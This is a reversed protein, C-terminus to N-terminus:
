FTIADFSGPCSNMWPNLQELVSLLQGAATPIYIETRTPAYDHQTNESQIYNKGHMIAICNYTNNQVTRMVPQIVPFWIRNTLGKHSLAWKETDRVRQWTGEGPTPYTTIVVTSAGLNASYITAKFNVQYYDDIANVNDTTATGSLTMALGTLTLTCSNGSGGTAASVRNTYGFGSVYPANIQTAFQNFLDIQNTTAAFAYYTYTFQGPREFTDTYVIRIKYETGIVPASAATGDGTITVVEQVTAQYPRGDYSIVNSGYIPDSFTLRRVGTVLTGNPSVYNYTATNGEAIYIFPTDNITAGPNLINKNQDVVVIEGYAINSGSGYIVLSATRGINQGIMVKNVDTFM